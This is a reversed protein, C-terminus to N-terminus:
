FGTESWACLSARHRADPLSTEGAPTRRLSHNPVPGAARQQPTRLPDGVRERYEVLGVAGGQEGFHEVVAFGRDSSYPFFPLMHITNVSDYYTEVFRHLAEIGVGEDQMLTNGLGLVLVRQIRKKM